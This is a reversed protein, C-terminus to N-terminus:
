GLIMGFASNVSILSTVDTSNFGLDYFRDSFILGFCQLVPIVVIQFLFFFFEAWFMLFFITALVNVNSLGCGLVIMWGWGGDPALFEKEVKKVEKSM